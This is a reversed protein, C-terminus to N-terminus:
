LSSEIEIQNALQYAMHNIKKQDNGEILIRIKPETGSYRVFIRGCTGLEKKIALILENSKKLNKLPRKQNIFRNQVARPIFQVIKKLNSLSNNTNKILFTLMLTSFLGDGTTNHNFFILHGSEEGGFSYGGSCLKELVNGDGVDTRIVNIKNQTLCQEISMSSMKTCVLTNKELCNQNKLYIAFLVLLVDGSVLNGMEDIVVLRDADGDLIIGMDAKRNRVLTKVANIYPFDTNHNINFGNPKNEIIFVEAGMMKLLEPGIKYASGNSCDMVIKFGKLDFNAPIDNRIHALYQNAANQICRINGIKNYPPNKFIPKLILDEIQLEQTKTIKYGFSNFIKIGNDCGQNHSASIMVGASAKMKKILFGVGPTPLQGLLRVSTGMSSIGATLAHELTDCTLRTDKGILIKNNNHKGFLFGLSRGVSLLLEATIPYTNVQGRIGDTGFLNKFIM